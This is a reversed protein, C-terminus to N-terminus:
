NRAYSGFLIVGPQEHPFLKGISENLQGIIMNVESQSCM